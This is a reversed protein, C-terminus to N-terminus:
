AAAAPFDRDTVFWYISVYAVILSLPSLEAVWSSLQNTDFSGVSQHWGFAITIMAYSAVAMWMARRSARGEISAITLQAFPLILLILSHVWTV